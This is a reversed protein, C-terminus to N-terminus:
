KMLLMKRIERQGNSEIRYFYTGSGFATANWRASYVGASKEENVLTAVERGLVDLIKLSVRGFDAIRFGIETNPNFPNPYNQDLSFQTPLDSSFREVSTTM